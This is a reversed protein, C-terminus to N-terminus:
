LQWLHEPLAVYRPSQKRRQEMARIARHRHCKDCFRGDPRCEKAVKDLLLQLVGEKDGHLCFANMGWTVCGIPQQRWLMPCAWRRPTPCWRRIAGSSTDAGVLLCAIQLPGGDGMYGYDFQLQPVVADIKSQERHPSDHGRSEVCMKCWPQSQFHTLNHQEMGIQDPTGPDRLTAPRAPMPEEVDELMQPGVPIQLEQAVEDSVGATSLPAVMM